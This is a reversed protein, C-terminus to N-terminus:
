PHFSVNAANMTCGAGWLFTNLVAYGFVFMVRSSAMRAEVYKGGLVILYGLGVPPVLLM